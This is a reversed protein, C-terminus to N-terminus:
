NVAILPSCGDPLLRQKVGGGYSPMAGYGQAEVLEEARKQELFNSVIEWIEKGDKDRYHNPYRVIGAEVRLQVKGGLVTESADRFCAGLEAAISEAEEEDCELYLADHHPACLMPGLGREVALTSALRLIEACGAQQPFNLLTNRSTDPSVALTWGFSTSIFGQEQAQQIQAEAWAWYTGYARKHSAIIREAQWLPVSLNVALKKAGVGYQIALLASKYLDRIAELGVNKKNRTTEPPVVGLFKAFELYQDAGSQYIRILEPDGSLDAAIGAEAAIIDAHIVARGQKPTILNRVWHPRNLIFHRAKPNNRGSVTGFPFISARNRNDAGLITGGLSLAKISKRAQRLPELEPHLKCMPGFVEDDETSYHLGKATTPWIEGYGLREILADFNKTKFVAKKKKGEFEFVRYGHKAEVEHAIHVQLDERHKQIEYYVPSIPLGNHEFWAVPKSYDGRLLAQDLDIEPVIQSLLNKTGLVDTWCYDLIRRQHADISVGPPPTTGWRIIYEREEEKEEHTIADLGFEALADVLGTGLKRLCQGGRWVGNIRNIYEFYLDLVNPPLEWGLAIFTKWEAAANYCVFVSNDYDFPNTQQADFFVELRRGSHLEEACLCVPVNTEGDPQQFETDIVWVSGYSKLSNTM